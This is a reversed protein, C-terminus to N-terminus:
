YSAPRVSSIPPAHLAGAAMSVQQECCWPQAATKPQNHTEVRRSSNLTAFKHRGQVWSRAHDLLIHITCFNLVIVIGCSYCFHACLGRNHNVFALTRGLVTLSALCHDVATTLVNCTVSLAATTAIGIRRALRGRTSAHKMRSSTVQVVGSSAKMNPLRRSPM